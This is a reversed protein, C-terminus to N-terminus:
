AEVTSYWRDGARWVSRDGLSPRHPGNPYAMAAELTASRRDFDLHIRGTFRARYM